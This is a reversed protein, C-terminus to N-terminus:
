RLISTVADIVDSVDEDTLKASLPLSLTREGIFEANPFDGAKHGLLKRYFPQLHLALYHVGTGINLANLESLVQDRTKGRKDSDILLTYLHYGHRTGAEPAAPTFCPLGAFAEDYRKWIEQRRRWYVDINPMQHLGLAAQMDTMNYKFGAYLVEYHKYGDDSFRKWADKSMGHLALIKIKDALEANDTLVMGGEATTINKTVYFSLTGFEGFTGAKRGRYETEIAHACDEVMALKHKRALEGLADMDCPRGAFHVPLIARTRSTIRSAIKAPDINQTGRECDVLVPKAGAHIIANLTACFTMPTTIVEDGPKLDLAALSLHLAATCSSVAIAHKSGKYDRVLDEFKKVKPGTGIWGSRLTAVVEQIAAEEILPSGFVLFDKRKKSPTTKM